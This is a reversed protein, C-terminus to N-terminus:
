NKWQILLHTKYNFKGLIVGNLSASYDGDIKREKLNFKLIGKLIVFEILIKFILRSGVILGVLLM